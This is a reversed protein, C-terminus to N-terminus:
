TVRHRHAFVKNTFSIDLKKLYEDDYMHIMKKPIM